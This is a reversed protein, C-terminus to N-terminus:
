GVYVGVGVGPMPDIWTANALAWGTPTLQTTLFRAVKETGVESVVLDPLGDGDRDEAFSVRIGHGDAQWALQTFLPTPNSNASITAGSYIQFIPGGSEIGVVIDAYGDGTVDGVAVSEAGQIPHGFAQFGGLLKLPGNSAPITAGSYVRIRRSGDGPAVVVDALGDRNIDGVAVRVGGTYNAGYPAFQRVLQGTTGDIVAVQGAGTATGVVIDTAGNGTIDGVAVSLGGSYLGFPRYSAIMKRTVGDYVKVKGPIGAGSAVIVDTVGDKNVDGLAVAAGGFFWSGFPTGEFGSGDSYDVRILTTM